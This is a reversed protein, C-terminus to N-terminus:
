KTRSKNIHTQKSLTQIIIRQQEILNPSSHICFIQKNTIQKTKALITHENHTNHSYFHSITLFTNSQNEFIKKLCNTNTKKIEESGNELVCVYLWNGNKVFKRKNKNLSEWLLCSIVFMKKVSNLHCFNLLDNLLSEINRITKIKHEIDYQLLFFISIRKANSSCSYRWDTEHLACLMKAPWVQWNM